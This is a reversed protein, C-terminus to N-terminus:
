SEGYANIVYDRVTTYIDEDHASQAVRISDLVDELIVWLDGMLDAAEIAEVAHDSTM